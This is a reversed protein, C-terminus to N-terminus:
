RSAARRYAASLIEDETMERQKGTTTSSVNVSKAKIAAETKKPDPVVKAEDVPPEKAKTEPMRRQVALEYAAKLVDKASANPGLESRVIPIYTPIHPEMEGWHEVTAAFETVLSEAQTEATYQSVQTRLYNPDSVQELKRQLTRVENQLDTVYKTDPAVQGGLAAAMQAGLGRKQVIGMLTEVPKEELEKSIKALVMIESAVQEPRMNMLNPIEQAARTLVDKIPNLAQIFRGQDALKNGMERQSEIIAERAQAPIDGWVGKVGSPLESPPPSAVVPEKTAEPAEEAAEVPAEETVAAEPEDEVPEGGTARAFAASYEADMDDSSDTIGEVPATAATEETM